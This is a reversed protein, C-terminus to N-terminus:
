PTKEKEDLIRNLADAALHYFNEWSFSLGSVARRVDMVHSCHEIWNTKEQVCQQCVLPRTKESM